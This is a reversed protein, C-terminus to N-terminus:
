DEPIKHLWGLAESIELSLDKTDAWRDIVVAAAETPEAPLCRESLASVTERM